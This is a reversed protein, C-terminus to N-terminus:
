YGVAITVTSPAIARRNPRPGRRTEPPRVVDSVAPTQTEPNWYWVDNRGNAKARYLSQDARELVDQPNEPYPARICCVGMSTTMQIMSNRFHVKLDAVKSRIREATELATPWTATPASSWSSRAATAPSSTPRGSRGALTM